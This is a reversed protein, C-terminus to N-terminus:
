PTCLAGGYNTVVGQCRMGPACGARDGCRCHGTSDCWEGQNCCGNAGCCPGDLCRDCVSVCQRPGTDPGAFDRSADSCGDCMGGDDTCGPLAAVLLAVALVLKLNAM